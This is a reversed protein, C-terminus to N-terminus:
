PQRRLFGTLTCRPGPSGMAFAFSQNVCAYRAGSKKVASQLMVEPTMSGSVVASRRAGVITPLTNSFMSM